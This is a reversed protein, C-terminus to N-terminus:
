ELDVPQEEPIDEAKDAQDDQEYPEDGHAMGAKIKDVYQNLYSRCVDWSHDKRLECSDILYVRLDKYFYIADMSPRETESKGHEKQWEQLKQVM